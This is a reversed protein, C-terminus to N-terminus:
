FFNEPTLRVNKEILPHIVSAYRANQGGVLWFPLALFFCSHSILLHQKSLRTYWTVYLKYWWTWNQQNPWLWQLTKCKNCCTPYGSTLLLSANKRHNQGFLANKNSYCQMPLVSVSFIKKLVVNFLYLSLPYRKPHAANELQICRQFYLQNNHVETKHIPLM